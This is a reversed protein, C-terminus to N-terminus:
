SRMHADNGVPAASPQPSRLIHFPGQDNTPEVHVHDNTQDNATTMHTLHALNAASPPGPNGNSPPQPLRPRSIVRTVGRQTTVAIARM